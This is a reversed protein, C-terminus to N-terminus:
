LRVLRPPNILQYANNKMWRYMAAHALGISLDDGIHIASAMLGGTLTRISIQDNGSLTTPLPIATEVDIAMRDDCWVYRSHLLLMASHSHQVHQQDLYATISKLHQGLDDGMPIISRISAVLLPDVQKLLIEFAPM